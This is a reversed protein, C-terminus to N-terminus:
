LKTRSSTLWWYTNWNRNVEAGMDKNPDLLSEKNEKQYM